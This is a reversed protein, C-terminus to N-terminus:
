RKLPFDSGKPYRTWPFSLFRSRAKTPCILSISKRTSRCNETRDTFLKEIGKVTQALIVHPDADRDLCQDITQRCIEQTQRLAYKEAVIEIYYEANAATPVFGYLEDLGEKDGVEALQNCAALTNRLWIFDIPIEPKAWQSIADFLIGHAPIFFSGAGIHQRCLAFVKGPAHLLSSILGKEADEDYPQKITANM